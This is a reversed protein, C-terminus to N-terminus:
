GGTIVVAAGVVVTTMEAVEIVAGGVVADTVTAVRGKVPGLRGAPVNAAMAAAKARAPRRKRAAARRM